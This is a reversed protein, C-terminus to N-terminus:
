QVMEAPEAPAVEADTATAEETPMDSSEPTEVPDAEIAAAEETNDAEALQADIADYVASYDEMWYGSNTDGNFTDKFVVVDGYEPATWTEEWFQRGDSYATEERVWNITFTVGRYEQQFTGTARTSAPGVIDEEEPAPEVPEVYPTPPTVNDDVVEVEEPDVPKIDPDTPAVFEEDEMTVPDPIIIEAEEEMTVPDPLFTPVDEPIDFVIVDPEENVTEVTVEEAQNTIESVSEPVSKKAAVIVDTSDKDEEKTTTAEPAKDQPDETQAKVAEDAAEDATDDDEAETDRSVLIHSHQISATNTDANQGKLGFMVGLGVMAVTCIVAAVCKKAKKMNLKREV